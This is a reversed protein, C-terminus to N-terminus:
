CLLLLLLLLLLNHRLTTVESTSGTTLDTHFPKALGLLSLGLNVVTV